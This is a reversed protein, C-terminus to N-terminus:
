HVPTPPQLPPLAAEIQPRLPEFQAPLRLTTGLTAEAEDITFGPLDTAVEFLVGGPERYYISHFYTRDMVPSTRVGYELLAAQVALEAADDAVRFAIHHVTGTGGTGRPQHRGAVVDIYSGAGGGPPAYRVRDDTQAVAAYGMPGTLLAVTAAPNAITLQATYMGRLVCDAPVTGGGWGPRSDSECGILQIPIGDPDRLTIVEADFLRSHGHAVGQCTLRDAWYSLADVAVSFSIASTQGWGVRGVAAGPWYFFTIATGPSGVADGYYLHYATPDDFNVTKKVLRLGLVGAYFQINTQPDSAIATLHHLGTILPQIGPNPSAFTSPM